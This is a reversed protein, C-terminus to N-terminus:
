EAVEHGRQKWWWMGLPILLTGIVFQWNDTFFVQAQEATTIDVRIPHELVRISRPVRDGEIMLLADVALYLMRSGGKTPTVTWRWEVPETRGIPQRTPTLPDIDFGDGTLRVDMEPAIRISLATANRWDTSRRQFEEMLDAVPMRPPSILVVVREPRKYRMPQRPNFVISAPQLAALADDVAAFAKLQRSASGANAKRISEEADRRARELRPVAVSAIFAIFTLVIAIEILTFGRECRGVLMYAHEGDRRRAIAGFPQGTV